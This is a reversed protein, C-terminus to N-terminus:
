FLEPKFLAVFLYASLGFAVILAVAYGLSM